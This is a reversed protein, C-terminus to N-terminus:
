NATSRPKGVDERRYGRNLMCLDDLRNATTFRENDVRQQRALTAADLAGATMMDPGYPNLREAETWAIASCDSADRAITSDSAGTRVWRQETTSVCAAALLLLPVVLFGTNPLRDDGGIV